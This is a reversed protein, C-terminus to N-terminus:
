ARTSRKRPKKKKKTCLTKRRAPSIKQALKPTKSNVRVSPRCYPYKKRYEKFGGKPRGCPVKKPLKCVNIWKESYWRELGQSPDRKGRYKGGRKKYERVVWSSAYISPWIDFKRKAEATVKAYLKTDIPKPPM